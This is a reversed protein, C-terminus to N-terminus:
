VRRTHAVLMLVSWAVALLLWQFAYGYHKSATMNVPKWDRVFGYELEDPQMLVLFPAVSYALLADLKDIEVAQIRLPWTIPTNWQQAKLLYPKEVPKHLGVFDVKTQVSPIDPLHQRYPSGPVWGRNVLVWQQAYQDLFPTVVHYGVKGQHTQNDLLFTRENDFRGELRVRQFYGRTEESQSLLEHFRMADGHQHALSAIELAAKEQGRSYQWRSLSLLLALVLLGLLVLIYHIEVQYRQNRISFQFGLSKPLKM